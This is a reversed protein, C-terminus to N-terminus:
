RGRLDLGHLIKEVIGVPPRDLNGRQSQQDDELKFGEQELQNLADKFIRWDYGRDEFAKRALVLSFNPDVKKLNILGEKVNEIHQPTYSFPQGGIGPVGAMKQATSIQPVQNM